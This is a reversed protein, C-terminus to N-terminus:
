PIYQYIKYWKALHLHKIIWRSDFTVKNRKLFRYLDPKIKIDSYKGDVLKEYKKYSTQHYDLGYKNLFLMLFLHFAKIINYNLNESASEINAIYQVVDKISTHDKDFKSVFSDYDMVAGAEEVYNSYKFLNDKYFHNTSYKGNYGLSELLNSECFFHKLTKIYKLYKKDSNDAQSLDFSYLSSEAKNMWYMFVLLRYTFSKLYYRKEETWNTKDVNHWRQEINNSLNWLRYNLEESAKILPTKSEALKEKINVRQRFYYERQIKYNLSCREYLYKLLASLLVVLISVLSSIITTQLSQSLLAWKQSIIEIM